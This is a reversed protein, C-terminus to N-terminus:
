RELAADVTWSGLFMREHRRLVSRGLDVGPLDGLMLEIEGGLHEVKVGAEPAHQALRAALERDVERDVHVVPGDLDERAEADLV